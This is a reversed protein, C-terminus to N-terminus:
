VADLHVDLAGLRASHEVSQPRMVAARERQTIEVAEGYGLDGIQQAPSNMGGLRQEHSGAVCEAGQVDFPDAIVVSGNSDNRSGTAGIAGRADNTLSNRRRTAPSSPREVTARPCTGSTRSYVGARSCEITGYRHQLFASRAMSHYWVTNSACRSPSGITM